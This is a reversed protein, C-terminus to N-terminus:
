TIPNIVWSSRKGEEGLGTPIRKSLVRHSCNTQLSDACLTIATFLKSSYVNRGLLGGGTPKTAATGAYEKMLQMM